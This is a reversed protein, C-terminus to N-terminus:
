RYMRTWQTISISNKMVAAEGKEGFKKLDAKLSFTEAMIVGVVHDRTENKSMSFTKEGLREVNIHVAGNIYTAGTSEVEQDVDYHLAGKDSLVYPNGRYRLHIHGDVVKQQIRASREEVMRM